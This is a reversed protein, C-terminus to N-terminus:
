IPRSGLKAKLSGPAPLSHNLMLADFSRGQLAREFDQQDFTVPRRSGFQAIKRMEGAMDRQPAVISLQQGLAISEIQHHQVQRFLRALGCRKYLTDGFLADRRSNREHATAIPTPDFRGAQHRAGESQQHAIGQGLWEPGLMHRGHELRRQAAGLALRAGASDALDNGVHALGAVDELGLMHQAVARHRPVLRQQAHGADVGDTM